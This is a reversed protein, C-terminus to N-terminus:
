SIDLCWVDRLNDWFGLDYLNEIEDLHRCRIWSAEHSQGSHSRWDPMKGDNTRVVLQNISIPWRTTKGLEFDSSIPHEAADSHDEGLISSRRGKWVAGDAMDERLGSWKSTENTTMGAWILYLQYAFLGWSLPSTLAALLGVAGVLVDRSM